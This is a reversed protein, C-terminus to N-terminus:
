QTNLYQRHPKKKFNSVVDFDSSFTKKLSTSVEFKPAAVIKAGQSVIPHGLMIWLRLKLLFIQPTSCNLSESVNSVGFFLNIIEEKRSPM